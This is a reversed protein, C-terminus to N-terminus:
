RPLQKAGTKSDNFSVAKVIEVPPSTFRRALEHTRSDKPLDRGQRTSAFWIQALVYETGYRSFVLKATRNIRLSAAENTLYIADRRHDKSSVIILPSAASASVTYTGAPFTRGKMLFEFQVDATMRQTHQASANPVAVALCLVGGWLFRAVNAFM